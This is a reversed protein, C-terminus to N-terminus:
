TLLEKRPASDDGFMTEFASPDDIEISQLVPNKLIETYEETTLSALGKIYRLYYGLSGKSEKFKQADAYTYFWKIDKGKKAILIPSKLRHIKMQKFLDPWHWFFALLLTFIHEGDHDEDTFIWIDNYTMDEISKDNIDLNLVSILNSLEKNKVIEHTKMGHTNMVVGRLPFGGHKKKDRADLLSSLASDGEVICLVNDDGKAEIHKAVRARNLNKQAKKAERKEAALKRALQAEIIPDIIEACAFIKKAIHNFSYQCNAEYHSNVESISNTMKEKTQSDFKPNQFNKVFLVFTLGNKILSKSVDIKHRRKIIDVLENAVGNSIYSVYTGGERTNVGNLYSNDRFGDESPAFFFTVNDEKFQVNHDSYMKAYKNLNTAKVRKKNFKFAIEPFAIQLSELRDNVIDPINMGDTFDKVGFLSFEPVFKVETGTGEKSVKKTNISYDDCGNKARLSFETGNSWTKGEFKSSLFNTAASGVGNTGISTRDDSFSTGSMTRTWAAEPRYLTKGDADEIQEIPIGRGNDTVTVSTDDVLISIENAHKFDTRIAEDVSNDIIEDIMKVLAPIYQVKKWEGLIFREVEELSSNGLYMGIRTRVHERANLIKFESKSM